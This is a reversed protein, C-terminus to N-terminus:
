ERSSRATVSDKLASKWGSFPQYGGQLWMGVVNAIRKHRPKRLHDLRREILDREFRMRDMAASQTSADVGLDAELIESCETFRAILADLQAHHRLLKAEPVTETVTSRVRELVHDVPSLRKTRSTISNSANLDHRRYYQLVEPLFMRRGTLRALSHIWDDHNGFNVPMPLMVETFERRFATCCGTVMGDARLGLNRMQTSKTLGLPEGNDNVLEADNIAVLLQDDGIFRARMRELKQSFWIDDQDSLFVLDGKCLSVAKGFNCVCGVNYENVHINVPFSAKEKFSQVIEVTEDSSCDDCVVLEDPQRKQARLSDLQQQIYQAGNYTAMAISVKM